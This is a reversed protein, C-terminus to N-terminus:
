DVREQIRHAEAQPRAAIGCLGLVGPFPGLGLYAVFILTWILTPVARIGAAIGKWFWTLFNVSVNSAAMFSVFFALVASIITALVAVSISELAGYLVDKWESFDMNLMKGMFEFAKLFNSLGGSLNLKLQFISLIYLIAVAAFFVIYFVKQNEPIIAIKSDTKM